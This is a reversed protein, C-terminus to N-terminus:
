YKFFFFFTRWYLIPHERLLRDFQPLSYYEFFHALFFVVFSIQMYLSSEFVSPATVSSLQSSILLLEHTTPWIQTIIPFILLFSWTRMCGIRFIPPNCCELTLSVTLKWPSQSFFPKKTLCKKKFIPIIKRLKWWIDELGNSFNKPINRLNKKM